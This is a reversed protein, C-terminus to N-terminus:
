KPLNVLEERFRAVLWEVLQPVSDMMEEITNGEAKREDFQDWGISRDIWGVEAEAIWQEGSHRFLLSMGIASREPRRDRLEANLAVSITVGEDDDASSEGKFPIVMTSVDRLAHNKEAELHVQRCMSRVDALLALFRLVTETSNM